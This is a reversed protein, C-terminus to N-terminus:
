PYVTLMGIFTIRFQNHLFIYASSFAVSKWQVIQTVVRLEPRTFWVPMCLLNYQLYDKKKVSSIFSFPHM